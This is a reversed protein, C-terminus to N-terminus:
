FPGKIAQNEKRDFHVFSIPFFSVPFFQFTSLCNKLSTIRLVHPWHWNKPFIAVWKFKNVGSGEGGGGEM